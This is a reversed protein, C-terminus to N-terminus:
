RGGGPPFGWPGSGRGHRGAHGGQRGFFRRAEKLIAWREAQEPTLLRAFGADFEDRAAKMADGLDHLELILAGVAAPDPDDGALLGQLEERTGRAEGALPRLEAALDELLVRAEDAQQETLGLFEAVARLAFGGPGPAHVAARGAGPGPGSGADSGTCHGSGPCGPGGGPPQALAPVVLLAALGLAAAGAFATSRISALPPQM